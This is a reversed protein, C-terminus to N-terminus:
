WISLVSDLVEPTIRLFLLSRRSPEDQYAILMASVESIPLRLPRASHLLKRAKFLQKKRIDPSRSFSAQSIPSMRRVLHWSFPRERTLLPTTM